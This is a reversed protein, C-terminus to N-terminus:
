GRAPFVGSIAICYHLALSPQRNDAGGPAVAVKPAGAAGQVEVTGLAAQGGVAGLPLTPGPHLPVRGRLDPLAFTTRGDGGYTTGLVAFLVPNSTIALLQGNCPLWGRPAFDIAFLEIQGIMPDLM